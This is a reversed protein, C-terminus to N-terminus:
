WGGEAHRVRKPKGKNVPKIDIDVSVQYDPSVATDPMTSVPVTIYGVEAPEVGIVVKDAKIVFKGKKKKADKEPLQVTASVDLRADSANQILVVVDFPKGARVVRPRVAGALQVVGM